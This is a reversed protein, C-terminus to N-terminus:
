MASLSRGNRIRRLASGVLWGALDAFISAFRLSLVVGAVHTVDVDAVWPLTLTLTAERVGIGGPSGPVLFGILWSISFCAIADILSIGINDGGVLLWLGLGGGLYFPLLFVIAGLIASVRRWVNGQRAVSRWLMVVAIIAAPCLALFLRVDDDAMTMLARELLPAALTIAILVQLFIELVLASVLAQNTAGVVRTNGHRMVFHFVNGPLYKGIQAILHSSLVDADIANGAQQFCWVLLSWALGVLIVSIALIGFVMVLLSPQTTLLCRWGGPCNSVLRGVVYAMGVLSLVGGLFGLLRRLDPALKVAM